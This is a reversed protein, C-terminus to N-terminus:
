CFLHLYNFYKTDITSRIPNKCSRPTQNDVGGRARTQGVSLIMVAQSVPDAFVGHHGDGPVQTTLLNDPLGPDLDASPACM